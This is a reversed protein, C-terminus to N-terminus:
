EFQPEEGPQWPELAGLKQGMPDVSFYLRGIRLVPAVDFTAATAGTAIKADEGAANKSGTVPYAEDAHQPAVAAVRYEGLTNAAQTGVAASESKVVELRDGKRSNGFDGKHTRNILPEAAAGYRDGEGLLGPLDA